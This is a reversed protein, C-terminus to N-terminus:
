VVIKIQVWSCLSEDINRTKEEKVINKWSSLIGTSCMIIDDYVPANKPLAPYFYYSYIILDIFSLVYPIRSYFQTIKKTPTFTFLFM